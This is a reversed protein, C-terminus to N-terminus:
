ILEGLHPLSLVDPAFFKDDSGLTTFEMLTAHPPVDEIPYSHTLALLTKGVEKYNPLEFPPEFPLEACCRDIPLFLM